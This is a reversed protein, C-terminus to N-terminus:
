SLGRAQAIRELDKKLVGEQTRIGLMVKEWEMVEPSLVEEEVSAKGGESLRQIYGSLDEGHTSRLGQVTGVAGVGFGWYDEGRWINWNHRCQKGAKAFNSVEYQDFGEQSLIQQALIYEDAVEEEGPVALGSAVQGALPTGTEVQLAYLSLHDPKLALAKRLSEAFMELTQGPLGFMLDLNLNDFGAQRAAQFSEEVKEWEHGRGLRKLIEKQSAQAGFSVRNVGRSRFAQLKKFDVTEPNAEISIEAESAFGAKTELAEMIKELQDPSLLSPTGGGFYVTRLPGALASNKIELALADVYSFIKSEQGAFSTFDCYSCISACFPIHLYANLFFGRFWSSM